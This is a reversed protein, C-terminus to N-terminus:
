KTTNRATENTAPITLYLPNSGYNTSISFGIAVPAVVAIPFRKVPAPKNKGTGAQLIIKGELTEGTLRAKSAKSMTIGPPLQGWLVVSGAYMAGMALIVPDKFGKNRKIRVTIEVTEGPKLTIENPLAEVKLLDLPETVGVLQTKIPCRAQPGPTTQLECTVRGYRVVDRPKGNADPIAATGRVRVLSADIKADSAASLILSCHTMEAPITVPTFSVGKPLGEIQMTVPGRFGNMRGIRAFWMMHTGPAIQAYYYEGSVGFDPGSPEARLHYFFREGGRDHLDRVSIFYKGDAPAKFHFQADKTYRGSETQGDDAEILKKGNSDHVEILCDLPLGYRDASVEFFYYSNKTANFSFYHTQEPKSFRGNVGVPISLPMASDRFNNAGTALLQPHASVLMPVSNTKGGPTDIQITKWGPTENKAATLTTKEVGGLAHGVVESEVSTGQQVAMPFVAHAFPKDSIEVCYVYKGNGVYRADRVELVYEATEPLKCAIFADGGFYDENQAIVRGNPGYLTLISDMLYILDIGGGGGSQMSHVAETVRQAYVNFTMEQGAKAAFRYYDVDESRECIGCVAAPFTIKQARELTGNEKKQEQIVPYDTVLLHAVSSVATKTAVRCEYVGLPQDAPVDAEFRFPTGPTGGGRRPAAIPETELFTMRIGPKDFFVKYAGDLTFNSRLNIISKTGRQVAVPTTPTLQRFGIKAETSLSSALLIFCALVPLLIRSKM